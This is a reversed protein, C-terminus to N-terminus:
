CCQTGNDGNWWRPFQSVYFNLLMDLTVYIILRVGFDISRIM